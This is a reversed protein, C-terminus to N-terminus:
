GELDARILEKIYGQVNDVEDLKALIDADTKINLKLGVRRTAKADYKAQRATASKTRQCYEYYVSAMLTNLVRNSVNLREKAEVIRRHIEEKEEDTFYTHM